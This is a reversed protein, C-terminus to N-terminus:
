LRKLHETGGFPMGVLVSLYDWQNQTASIKSSLVMRSFSEFVTIVYVPKPNPLLHEEIYRVDCCWYQHRM